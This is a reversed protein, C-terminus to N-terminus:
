SVSQLVLRYPKLFLRECRKLVADVDEPQSTDLQLATHAHYVYTYSPLPLYPLTKVAGQPALCVCVRLGVEVAIFDGEAVRLEHEQAAHPRGASRTPDSSRYDPFSNLMPSTESDM